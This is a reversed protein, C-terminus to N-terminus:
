LPLTDGPEPVTITARTLPRLGDALALSAPPDGHVIFIGRLRGGSDVQSIWWLLENRDAHASFGNIIRVQARRVYEEGFIRVRAEKDALRRGLTDPAQWSVILITNREDGVNNKLHHLIRGAECMGSAAIIICPERLDNLAKSEAVNRVYHLRRFGFPDENRLIYADTEEDFCEPHLRFVETADLALPSDVFVPQAPISGAESLRHLAYVIEQTRGLAFAPILLKGRRAHTENVIAVLQDDIEALSGHLRNGYTSETLLYDVDRVIAPDDLIALGRRGLDGTFALRVTRAGETMELVTIAAGLIHGADRFTAQAGPVPSFPHDYSVGLMHEQTQEADDVEYLLEVAPLGQRARKKNVYTTDEAQVEASDRLMVGALDRTAPTCYISNPFGQRVLTPLNGVHDIHAHSLLVADIEKPNFPFRSNRAFAEARRGQFLGCDLLVQHGNVQLLHMSGTVTRVAGLFTIQM